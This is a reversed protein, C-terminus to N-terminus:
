RENRDAGRPMEGAFARVIGRALAEITAREHISPAYRVALGLRGEAISGEIEILRRREMAGVSAAPLRQSFHFDGALVPDVVGLFNLGIEEEPAEVPRPALWRLAGWGLGASPVTALQAEIEAAAGAGGGPCALLVPFESALWGVTRSPDVGPFPSRRGHTSLQVRSQERGDWAHLATALADLLGAVIRADPLSAAHAGLDVSLIATDAYGHPRAPHDTPLPPVPTEAIERWYPREEELAEGHSWGGLRATWASFPLEGGPPFAAPGAGALGLAPLLDELLFLWSVADVVLHHADLLLADGEPLRYRVARFLPGSGLDFAIRRDEADALLAVWPDRERRLDVDRPRAAAAEPALTAMWQGDRQSFRLRLAEHRRWVAAVAAAVAEIDLRLTTELLFQHNLHALDRDHSRLFWHQMPTMAVPGGPMGAPAIPVDAGPEDIAAAIAAVSDARLLTRLDSALGQRRLHALLQIAKLSGGGM